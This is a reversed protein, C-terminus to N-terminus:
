LGAYASQLHKCSIGDLIEVSESSGMINEALWTVRYLENKDCNLGIIPADKIIIDYLCSRLQSSGEATHYSSSKLYM